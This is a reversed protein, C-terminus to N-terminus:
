AQLSRKLLIRFDQPAVSHPALGLFNLLKRAIQTEVEHSEEPLSSGVTPLMLSQLTLNDGIKIFIPMINGRYAEGSEIQIDHIPHVDVFYNRYEWASWHGENDQARFRIEHSGNSLRKSIDLGEGLNGDISSFWQFNILSGGDYDDIVRMASVTTTMMMIVLTNRM